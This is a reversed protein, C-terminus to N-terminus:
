KQEVNAVAAPNPDVQGVNAAVEEATLHAVTGAKGVACDVLVLAPILADDNQKKDM